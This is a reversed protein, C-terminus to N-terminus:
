LAGKRRLERWVVEGDVGPFPFLVGFSLVLNVATLFLLIPGGGILWGVLGGISLIANLVPGGLARGLHIRRPLHEPDNHYYTLIKTDLILNADMPAGVYYGGLTHGVIHLLQSLIVLFTFVIGFLIRQPFGYSQLLLLAILLSFGFRTPIFLLSKPTLKWPVGLLTFLIRGSDYEDDIDPSSKQKM